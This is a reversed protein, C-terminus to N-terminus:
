STLKMGEDIVLGSCKLPKIKNFYKVMKFVLM